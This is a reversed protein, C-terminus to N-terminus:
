RDASAPWIGEFTYKTWHRIEDGGALIPSAFDSNNVADPFYQTELCLGSLPGYEGQAPSHDLQHGTYVQIGGLSTEVMLSLGSTPEELRAIAGPAVSYCHDIGGLPLQGIVDGLRPNKTLDFGTGEVPTLVGTPILQDNIEVIEPSEVCLHHDEITGAGALNWYTHNTISVPTAKDSRAEWSFQLCNEELHWTVEVELNGPYGGEGDPRAFGFKVLNSRQDTDITWIRRGFGTPGGHLHNRGENPTLAYTEDGLMFASNGIRNAVPGVTCGLYPPNDAYSTAEPLSLCVGDSSGHNAPILKWLSAGLNLLRVRMYQNSIEVMSVTEGSALRGVPQIDIAM